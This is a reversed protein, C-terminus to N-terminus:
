KNPKNNLVNPKIDTYYGLGKKGLKFVKGERSGDFSSAAEFADDNEEQKDTISSTIVPELPKGNELRDIKDKLM